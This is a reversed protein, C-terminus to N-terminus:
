PKSNLPKPSLVCESLREKPTSCNPSTRPKPRSFMRLGIKSLNVAVGLETSKGCRTGKTKCSCRRGVCRDFRGFLALCKSLSVHSPCMGSSCPNLNSQDTDDLTPSHAHYCLIRGLLTSSAHYTQASPLSM